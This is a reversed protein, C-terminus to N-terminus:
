ERSHWKPWCPDAAGGQSHVGIRCRQKSPFSHGAVQGPELGAPATPAQRPDGRSAQGGVEPHHGGSETQRSPVLDSGSTAASGQGKPQPPDRNCGCRLWPHPGEM